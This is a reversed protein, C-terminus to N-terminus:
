RVNRLEFLVLDRNTQDVLNLPHGGLSFLTGPGGKHADEPDHPIQHRVCGRTPWMMDIEDACEAALRLMFDLLQDRAAGYVNAVYADVHRM